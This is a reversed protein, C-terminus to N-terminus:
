LAAFAQRTWEESELLLAPIAAEAGVVIACDAIAVHVITLVEDLALKAARLEKAYDTVAARLASRSVRAAHTAEITADRLERDGNAHYVASEHIAVARARAISSLAACLAPHISGLPRQTRQLEPVATVPPNVREQVVRDVLDGLPRPGGPLAFYLCGKERAEAVLESTSATSSMLVPRSGVEEAASLCAKVVPAALSTDVMTVDPRIRRVSEGAAGATVDYVPRHGAFAVLEGVLTEINPDAAIVLVSAM